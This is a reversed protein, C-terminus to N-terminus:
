VTARLDFPPNSRDAPYATLQHSRDVGSHSARLISAGEGAEIVIEKWGAQNEFNPDEFTLSPRPPALTLEAAIRLTALGGAGGSIAVDIRGIKPAVPQNASTFRLQGIWARMEDAARDRLGPSSRELKWKRVLDFAPSEALDVVYTVDVRGAGPRILTYQNVSFNAMPHAFTVLATSLALGAFRM